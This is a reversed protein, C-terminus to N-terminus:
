SYAVQLRRQNRVTRVVVAAEREAPPRSEHRRHLRCPNVHRGQLIVVDPVVAAPRDLLRLRVQLVCADLPRVALRRGDDVDSTQLEPEEGEVAHALRNVPRRHRRLDLRQARLHVHQRHGNVPAHFVDGRRLRRRADGVVIRDLDSM